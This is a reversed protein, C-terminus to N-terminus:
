IRRLQVFSTRNSIEASRRIYGKRLLVNIAKITTFNKTGNKEMQKIIEQLPTTTKKEHVWYDIYKMISTQLENLESLNTYTTKM